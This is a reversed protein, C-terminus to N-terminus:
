QLARALTVDFDFMVSGKGEEWFEDPELFGSAGHPVYHESETVVHLSPLLLSGHSNLFHQGMGDM